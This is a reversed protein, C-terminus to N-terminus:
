RYGVPGPLFRIIRPRPHEYFPVVFLFDWNTTFQRYLYWVVADLQVSWNLVSSIAIDCFFRVITGM